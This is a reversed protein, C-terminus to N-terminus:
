AIADGAELLAEEPPKGGVRGCSITVVVTVAVAVDVIRDSHAESQDVGNESLMDAGVFTEALSHAGTVPDAEGWSLKAWLFV